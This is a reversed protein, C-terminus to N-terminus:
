FADSHPQKATQSTYTSSSTSVAPLLHDLMAHRSVPARCSV